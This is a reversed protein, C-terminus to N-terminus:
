YGFKGNALNDRATPGRSSRSWTSGRRACLVAMRGKGALLQEQMVKKIDPHECSARSFDVALAAPAAFASLTLAALVARYM